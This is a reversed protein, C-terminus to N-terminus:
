ASEERAMAAFSALGAESTRTLLLLVIPILALLVDKLTHGFLLCGASFVGAAGLLVTSLLKCRYFAPAAEVLGVEVGSRALRGVTRQTVVATLLLAGLPLLLRLWTLPGFFGLRESTGHWVTQVLAVAALGTCVIAFVALNNAQTLRRVVRRADSADPPAANPREATQGGATESPHAQTSM